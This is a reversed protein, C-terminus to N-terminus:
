PEALPSVTIAGGCPALGDVRVRREKEDGPLRVLLTSAQPYCATIGDPDGDDRYSYVLQIFVRRGRRLHVTRVPGFAQSVRTAFLRGRRDVMRVTPFGRIRCGARSRERVELAVFINGTAGQGDGEYVRPNCRGTRRDSQHLRACPTACASGSEEQETFSRSTLPRYSRREKVRKLARRRADARRRQRQEFRRERSISHFGGTIRWRRDVRRLRLVTPLREEFVDDASRVLVDSGSISFRLISGPSFPVTFTGADRAALVADRCSRPAPDPVDERAVAVAQRRAATTMLDCAAGPEPSRVAAVYDRMTQRVAEAPDPDGGGCGAVGIAAAVTLGCRVVWWTTLRASM